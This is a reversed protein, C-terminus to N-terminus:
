FAALWGRLHIMWNLSASCRNLCVAKFSTVSSTSQGQSQRIQLQLVWYTRRNDDPAMHLTMLPCHLHCTERLSVQREKSATTVRCKLKTWGETDCLQGCICESATTSMISKNFRKLGGWPKCVSVQTQIFCCYSSVEKEWSLLSLSTPIQFGQDQTNWNQWTSNRHPM